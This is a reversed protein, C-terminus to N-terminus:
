NKKSRHVPMIKMNEETTEEVPTEDAVPTEELSKFLAEVAADELDNSESNGDDEVMYNKIVSEDVCIDQRAITRKLHSIAGFAINDKIIKNIKAVIEKDIIPTINGEVDHMYMGDIIYLGILWRGDECEDLIVPHCQGEYPDEENAELYSDPDDTKFMMSPVFNTLFDYVGNREDVMSPTTKSVDVDGVCEHFPITIPGFADGTSIRIIDTDEEQYVDITTPIYDSDVDDEDTMESDVEGSFALETTDEFEEPAEDSAEDEVQTEETNPEEPTEESPENPEANVVVSAATEALVKNVDVDNDAPTNAIEADLADKLTTDPGEAVAEAFAEVVIEADATEQPTFIMEDLQLVLNELASDTMPIRKKLEMRLAPIMGRQLGICDNYKKVYAQMMDMLDKDKMSDDTFTRQLFMMTKEYEQGDIVDPAAYGAHTGENSKNPIEIQKYNCFGIISKYISTSIARYFDAPYMKKQRVDNRYQDFASENTMYEQILKGINSAAFHAGSRFKDTFKSEVKPTEEATEEAQETASEAIPEENTDEVTESEVTEAQVEETPETEAAVEIPEPRQLVTPEKVPEENMVFAQIIDDSDSMDGSFAPESHLEEDPIVRAQVVNFHMGNTNLEMEKEEKTNNLNKYYGIEHELEFNDIEVVEEEETKAEEKEIKLYNSREPTLETPVNSTEMLYGEESLDGIEHNHLDNGIRRRIDSFEYSAGCGPAPCVLKVFDKDPVLMSNNKCKRCIFFESSVDYVYAFDLCVPSDSGVRLGWNAYNKATIGVDGILYVSSFGKLIERIEDAYQYMEGYSSFPQIYEAVLLTGNSSVEYIKTVHPYLRKAMKFEKFNDIIGDKDTAVKIVFGKMKFAYRNTGPGLPTIGDIQYERLLKFLEDQKEENIIDRRKSLMAIKFRLEEPFEEQLLSRLVKQM